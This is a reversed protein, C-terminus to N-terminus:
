KEGTKNQEGDVGGRLRVRAVREVSPTPIIPMPIVDATTAPTISYSWLRTDGDRATVFVEDIRTQLRNLVYVVEVKHVDPFGPFEQQQEVFGLTAQTQINSGLGNDNAKKFRLAVTGAFIFKATEDRRIVRVAADGDIASMARQVIFDYVLCARSRAQFLLRGSLSSDLWDNWGDQVSKFIVSEYKALVARVAQEDALTM